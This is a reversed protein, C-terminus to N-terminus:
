INTIMTCANKMHNPWVNLCTTRSNIQYDHQVDNPLRLKNICPQYVQKTCTIICSPVSMSPITSIHVHQCIPLHVHNAYQYICMNGHQYLCIISVNWPHYRKECPQHVHTNNVTPVNQYMIYRTSINNM